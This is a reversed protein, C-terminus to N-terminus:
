CTPELEEYIYSNEAPTQAVFSARNGNEDAPGVRAEIQAVSGFTSTIAYQPIVGDVNVVEEGFLAPSIYADSDGAAIALAASNRSERQAADALAIRQAPDSVQNTLLQNTAAMLNEITVALTFVDRQVDDSEAISSIMPGITRDMLWPNPCEWAEGGAAVTLEGMEDATEQHQDRLTEALAAADAELVRLGLVSDYVAVATMEYSSSTRLLVADNVPYDELDTAPPAYGVRGPDTAGTDDGCAAAIAGISLTLGGIRLAQRRTTPTGAGLPATPDTM